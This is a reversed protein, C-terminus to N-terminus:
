GAILFGIFVVIIYPLNSLFTLARFSMVVIAIIISIFMPKYPDIKQVLLEGVRIMLLLAINNDLSLLRSQYATFSRGIQIYTHAVVITGVIGNQLFNTLVAGTFPKSKFLEFDIFQHKRTREFFIFIFTLIISAICLAVSPFSTWGLDQG